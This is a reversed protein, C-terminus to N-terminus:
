YVVNFSYAKLLHNTLKYNRHFFWMRYKERDSSEIRYPPHKTIMRMLRHAAAASVPRRVPGPRTPSHLDAFPAPGPNLPGFIFKLFYNKTFFDTPHIEASIPFDTPHGRGFSLQLVDLRDM